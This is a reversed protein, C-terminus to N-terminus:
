KEPEGLILRTREVKFDSLEYGLEFLVEEPRGTKGPSSCLRMYAVPLGDAGNEVTITHILPRLDYSKRRRVRPISERELLQDFEVKLRKYTTTGNFFQIIYDSEKVLNVPAPSKGVVVQVKNISLGEPLNDAMKAAIEDPSIEEELWIDVLEDRGIFGVPLPNAIQVRPQPHFGKSYEIKLGARRFSREWIKQVDLVSTYILSGSKEFNVRIRM